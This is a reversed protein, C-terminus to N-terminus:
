RKKLDEWYDSFMLDRAASAPLREGALSELDSVLRRMPLNFMQSLKTLENRFIERFENVLTRTSFCIAEARDPYLLDYQDLFSRCADQMNWLSDALSSNRPINERDERLRQRIEEISKIAGSAPGSIGWVQSFLIRRDELFTILKTVIVEDNATVPLTTKSRGPTKSFQPAEGLEPKQHEPQLYPFRLLEEMRQEFENDNRFDVFILPSLYDPTYSDRDSVSRVIPIYRKDRHRQFFRNSALITEVGVGGERENARHVYDPTCIFLQCDAKRVAQEMLVFRDSGILYIRNILSPTLEM